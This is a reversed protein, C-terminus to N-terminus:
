EINHHRLPSTYIPTDGYFDDELSILEPITHHGTTQPVHCTEECRKEELRGSRVGESRAWRQLEGLVRKFGNDDASGFKVMNTHNAHISISTYGDFTASDKSVIPKGIKGLPLGEFFCTIELRRGIERLERVMALFELQISELLQDDTRLVTLLSTNIYRPVLGFIYAPIQLWDAMWSGRHPTGMFIIGKLHNFLGRFHPDPHNRSLLTAKKCVLGGWSHAVFILPRTSANWRSRDGTVDFLLNTAHDILRNTGAVTKRLPHADYGYTLIRAKQMNEPLFTQLWPFYEGHATWTSERDGFLGHIFCIDIEADACDHLVKVGDPYSSPLSYDSPYGVDEYLTLQLQSCTTPDHARHVFRKFGAKM